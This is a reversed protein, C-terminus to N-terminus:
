AGVRPSRQGMALGVLIIALAAWANVGLQEGAVLTGVAVAFIPVLYNTLSLFAAGATKALYFYVATALGTAFAGLAVVALMAALPVDEPMNAETGLLVALMMLSSLILVGAASQQPDRSPQKQALITAIAYCTAGGLVALKAVSAAATFLGALNQPEFLVIVGAFGLSFGLVRRWHLEEGPVFFHALVIVQLPVVAMLIGAEGSAIFQQGWAILMFPACNGFVALAIFYRWHSMERPLRKGALLTLSVLIACGIWIRGATIQTPSLSAVAIQVLLFASGWAAVLIILALWQPWRPAAM